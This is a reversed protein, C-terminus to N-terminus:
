SAMSLIELFGFILITYFSMKMKSIRSTVWTENELFQQVNGMGCCFHSYFSHLFKEWCSYLTRCYSKSFKLYRVCECLKKWTIKMSKHSLVYKKMRNERKWYVCNDFKMHKRKEGRTSCRFLKKEEYLRLAYPMVCLICNNEWERETEECFIKNMKVRVFEFDSYRFLLM